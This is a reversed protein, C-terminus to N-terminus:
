DEAVSRRGPTKIALKSYIEIINKNNVKFLYIYGPEYSSVYKKGITKREIGGSFMLYGSTKSTKSTELPWLFLGTAHFQNIKILEQMEVGNWVLTEM